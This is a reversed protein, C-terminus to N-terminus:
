AGLLVKKGGTDVAGTGGNGTMVTSTAARLRDKTRNGAKEANQNDPSRQAAYQVPLRPDEPEPVSSGFVCM